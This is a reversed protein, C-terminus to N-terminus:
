PHNADHGLSAYLFPKGTPSSSGGNPEVTVFVAAIQALKAPDDFRLVWRRNAENDMYFIGLNLTKAPRLDKCAPDKCGWAQFSGTNKLAPGHDLDFAYFVLSKKSTYFIRGFPKGGRGAKDVDFVDAIYLQRAGMLERIDRDFSLYQRHEQLSREKEEIQGSLKQIESQFSARELLDERRQKELEEQVTIFEQQVRRLEQVLADRERTLTSVQTRDFAGLESLRTNADELAAQLRDIEAQKTASESRLAVMALAQERLQAELGNARILLRQASVTSVIPPNPAASRNRARAWFGTLGIAALLCAALATIAAHKRFALVPSVTQERGSAPRHLEKFLRSRVRTEDWTAYDGAMEYDEAAAPMLELTLAWEQSYM